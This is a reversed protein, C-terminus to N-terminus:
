SGSAIVRGGPNGRGPRVKGQTAPAATTNKGERIAQAIERSLQALLQSQAAVLGEYGGVDAVPTSLTSHKVTVVRDGEGAILVWRAELTVNGALEGDFRTVDMTVRYDISGGGKWPFFAIRDTGVMISLNGALVRTFSEKLPEGWRDFEAVRIEHGGTQTVIQPRDLYEPMVVPGIGLSLEGNARAETVPTSPVGHLLYLRSPATSGCGAVVLM